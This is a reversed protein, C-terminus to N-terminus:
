LLQTVTATDQRIMVFRESGDLKKTRTVSGAGGELAALEAPGESFPALPLDM